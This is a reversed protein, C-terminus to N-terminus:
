HIFASLNLLFGIAIGMPTALTFLNKLDQTRIPRNIVEAANTKFPRNKM